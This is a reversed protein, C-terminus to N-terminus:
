IMFETLAERGCYGEPTGPDSNGAAQAVKKGASQLRCWVLSWISISFVDARRCNISFNFLAENAPMITISMHPDIHDGHPESRKYYRNNRGPDAMTANPKQSSTIRRGDRSFAVIV